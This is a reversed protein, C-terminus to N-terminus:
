STRASSRKERPTRAATESTPVLEEEPGPEEPTSSTAWAWHARFLRGRVIRENLRVELLRGREQLARVLTEDIRLLAAIRAPDSTTM